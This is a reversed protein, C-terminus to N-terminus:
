ILFYVLKSSNKKNSFKHCYKKKYIKLCNKEILTRRIKIFIMTTRWLWLCLFDKLKNKRMIRKVFIIFMHNNIKIQYKLRAWLTTTLVCAKLALLRPEFGLPGETKWVFNKTWYIHRIDYHQMTEVFGFIIAIWYTFYGKYWIVM